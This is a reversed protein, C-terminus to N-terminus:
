DMWSRVLSNGCNNWDNKVVPYAYMVDNWPYVDIWYLYLPFCGVV